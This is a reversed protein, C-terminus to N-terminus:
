SHLGCVLRVAEFIVVLLIRIVDGTTLGQWVVPRKRSRHRGETM